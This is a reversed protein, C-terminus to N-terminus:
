DNLETMEQSDNDDNKTRKKPLEFLDSFEACLDEDVEPCEQLHKTMIKNVGRVSLNCYICNAQYHSSNLKQGKTFYNWIEGKRRGQKNNNLM